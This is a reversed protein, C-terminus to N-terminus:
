PKHALATASDPECRGSRGATMALFGVGLVAAVLSGILVGVTGSVALAARSGFALATFFLSM